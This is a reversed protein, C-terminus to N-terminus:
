REQCPASASWSTTQQTRRRARKSLQLSMLKGGTRPVEGTRWSREFIISLPKAVVDALERLV